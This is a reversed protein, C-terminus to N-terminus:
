SKKYSAKTTVPGGGGQFDPRTLDIQLTGDTGLAWVAKSEFSQGDFNSTITLVLKNGDWTTKTVREITTGNFDLPSKTETGDLSYLTKFEGMQSTSTVTMTKVDQTVTLQPPTFMDAAETSLKWTGSFNPKEQGAVLAGAVTVSLVVLSLVRKMLNGMRQISALLDRRIVNHCQDAM